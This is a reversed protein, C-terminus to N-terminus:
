GLPLPTWPGFGPCCHFCLFQFFHIFFYPGQLHIIRPESTEHNGDYAIPFKESIDREFHDIKLRIELDLLVDCFLDKIFKLHEFTYTKGIFFHLSFSIMHNWSFASFCTKKRIRFFVNKESYGLNKTKKFTFDKFLAGAALPPPPAVLNEASIITFLAVHCITSHITKRMLFLLILTEGRRSKRNRGCSFWYFWVCKRITTWAGKHALICFM